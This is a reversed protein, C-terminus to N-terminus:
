GSGETGPYMRYQSPEFHTGPVLLGIGLFAPPAPSASTTTSDPATGGGGRAPAEEAEPEAPEPEAAEPEAADPPSVDPRADM